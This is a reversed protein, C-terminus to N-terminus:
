LYLHSESMAASVAPPLPAPSVAPPLEPPLAPAQPPAPAVAQPAQPPAPAVAQLVQPPAQTRPPASPPPNTAAPAAEHAPSLCRPFHRRLSARVRGPDLAGTTTIPSPDEHDRVRLSAPPQIPQGGGRPAERWTIGETLKSRCGGGRPLHVCPNGEHDQAHKECAEKKHIGRRDIRATDSSMSCSKDLRLAAHYPATFRLRPSLSAISRYAKMARAAVRKVKEFLAPLDEAGGGGSLVHSTDIRSDRVQKEVIQDLLRPSRVCTSRDTWKCKSNANCESVNSYRGCNQQTEGFSEAIMGSEIKSQLDLLNMVGQVANTCMGDHWLCSASQKCLAEGAGACETRFQCKQIKDYTNPGSRTRVPEGLTCLPNTACTESDQKTCDFPVCDQGRDSNPFYECLRLNKSGDEAKECTKRDRRISCTNYRDIQQNMSNSIQTLAYEVDRSPSRNRIQQVLTDLRSMNKMLRATYHDMTKRMQVLNDFCQNNESLCRRGDFKEEFRMMKCSQDNNLFPGIADCPAKRMWDALRHLNDSQGRLRNLQEYMTSELEKQREEITAAKKVSTEVPIHVMEAPVCRVATNNPYEGVTSYMRKYPTDKLHSMPPCTGDLPNCPVLAAGADKCERVFIDGEEDREGRSCMEKKLNHLKRRIDKDDLLTDGM